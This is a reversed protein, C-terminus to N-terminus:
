RKMRGPHGGIEAFLADFGDSTASWTHPSEYRRPAPMALVERLADRLAAVDQPPVFRVGAYDSAAEVLGGVSSVVVPLGHAMAVALPGSSSSRHYPLVVAFARALYGELDADSVYSNVVTIRSAHRSRAAAELPLTWGEWTEGVIMLRATAAEADTLGDFAEVLDEVGKFPRIVGFWLLDRVGDEQAAIVEGSAEALDGYPGHPILAVAKKSQGYRATILDQDHESHVVIGSTARMLLPLLANVYGGALPMKLEGVDQVEHFEVVVKVGSLKAFWALLLYSHLVAGTWWQFVAVDPRQKRILRLAGLMGRGWWDVGDHAPIGAPYSFAALPKGIRTNGPYMRAPILRRMLVVSVDDSEALAVALRHTYYSIGSLFHTGSGIVLVRRRVVKGGFEHASRDQQAM